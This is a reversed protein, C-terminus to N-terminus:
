EVCDYSMEWVDAYTGLPDDSLICMLVFCEYPNSVYLEGMGCKELIENTTNLFQMYRNKSNPYEEAKQSFVFFNLTILDFRDIEAENSLIDKLRQRSFKRGYFHENFKSAKIPLLNGHRDLPIASCIVHEIDSPTIDDSTFVYKEAKKKEIRMQKESDFLRTNNAMKTRYESVKAENHEIETENYMNAVIEKTANYLSDFHNRATVSFKSKNDATKLKSLHSLLTSDDHIRSASNRFGITAERYIINVNFSNPQTEEYAQWLKQFKLYNYGNKYCYWCIIEFPDKFNIEQERLAKTLFENVDEVSMKLGFGLLFVVKRKVTQQTLWNKSLASLKSTVDTFSPPTHNDAFAERIILQYDKIAIESYKGSLEAKKYIYRKLYDCFPIARLRKELAKYILESDKDRFYEDDVADFLSDYARGTFDISDSYNDQM